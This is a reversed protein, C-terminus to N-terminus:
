VEINVIKQIAFFGAAMMVGAVAMMAIGCTDQFMRGMYTPNMAFLILGLGIPLFSIVYGSIMQQSTLVRIEGKIRVRERITYSITELIEALNGGVEHQVNIATIMLDLDDSPIRRLMNNMARETSLGLGIERVVRQFEESIPPPMENAVADMAQLLSYGSRLGNALLNIADGLQNNFDKLRKRQRMKVYFGPLFYGAVLGGLTLFMNQHMILYFLLGMGLVSVVQLIIYEGVTLKLNARALNTAINRAFSKEAVAKNITQTLRSPQREDPRESESIQRAVFQDLRSELDEEGRGIVRALVIFLGIVVLFALSAVVVATVM